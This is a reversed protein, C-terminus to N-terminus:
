LPWSTKMDHPRFLSLALWYASLDTYPNAREWDWGWVAFVDRDRQLGLRVLSCLGLHPVYGWTPFIAGPPPCLRMHAVYGGALICFSPVSSNLLV